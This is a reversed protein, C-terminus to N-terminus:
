ALMKTRTHKRTKASLVEVYILNLAVSQGGFALATGKMAIVIPSAVETTLLASGAVGVAAIECGYLVGSLIVIGRQHKKAFSAREDQEVSRIDGTDWQDWTQVHSRNSKDTYGHYLICPAASEIQERMREFKSDLKMRACSTVCHRIMKM